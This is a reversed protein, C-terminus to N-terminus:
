RVCERLEPPHLLHEVGNPSEIGTRLQGDGALARDGSHFVIGRRRRQRRPRAGREIAHLARPIIRAKTEIEEVAHLSRCCAASTWRAAIGNIERSGAPSLMTTSGFIKRGSCVCM